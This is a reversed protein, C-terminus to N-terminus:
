LIPNTLSPAEDTTSSFVPWTPCNLFSISSSLPIYDGTYEEDFLM